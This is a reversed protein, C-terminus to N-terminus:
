RRARQENQWSVARKSTSSGRTAAEESAAGQPCPRKPPLGAGGMRSRDHPIGQSDSHGAGWLRGPQFAIGDSSNQCCSSPHSVRGANGCSRFTRLRDSRHPTPQHKSRQQRCRPTSPTWARGVHALDIFASSFRSLVPQWHRMSGSPNGAADWPRHSMELLEHLQPEPILDM